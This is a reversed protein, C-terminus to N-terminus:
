MEGYPNQNQRKKRVSESLCILVVFISNLSEHAGQVLHNNILGSILLRLLVDSGNRFIFRSPLFENM